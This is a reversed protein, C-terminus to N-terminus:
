TAGIRKHLFAAKLFFNAYNLKLRHVGTLALRVRNAKMKSLISHLSAVGLHNCEAAFIAEWHFTFLQM